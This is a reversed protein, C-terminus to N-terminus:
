RGRPRSHPRSHPCSHAVYCVEAGRRGPRTRSSSWDDGLRCGWGVWGIYMGVRALVKPATRKLVGVTCVVRVVEDVAGGEGLALLGPKVSM